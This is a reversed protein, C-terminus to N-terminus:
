FTSHTSHLNVKKANFLLLQPSLLGCSTWSPSFRNSGRIELFFAWCFTLNHSKSRFVLKFEIGIFACTASACWKRTVNRIVDEINNKILFLCRSHSSRNRQEVFTEIPFQCLHPSHFFKIFNYNSRQNSSEMLRAVFCAVSMQELLTILRRQRVFILQWSMLSSMLRISYNRLSFMLRLATLM